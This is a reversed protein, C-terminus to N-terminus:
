LPSSSSSLAINELNKKSPSEAWKMLAALLTASFKKLFLKIM